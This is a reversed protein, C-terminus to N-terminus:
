PVGAELVHFTEPCTFGSREEASEFLLDVQFFTPGGRAFLDTFIIAPSRLLM